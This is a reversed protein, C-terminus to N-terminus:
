YALRVRHSGNGATIQRFCHSRVCPRRNTNVLLSILLTREAEISSEAPYNAGAITCPGTVRRMGCEADDADRTYADCCPHVPSTSAAFTAWWGRCGCPDAFCYCRIPAVVGFSILYRDYRHMNAEVCTLSEGIM